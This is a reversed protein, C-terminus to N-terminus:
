QPQLVVDCVAEKSGVNTLTVKVVVQNGRKAWDHWYPTMRPDDAFVMQFNRFQHGPATIQFHIHEPIRWQEGQRDARGPYGGPRITSFEFHGHKDTKLYGFLRAKPENMVSARTYHGLADTQFVYIVAAAVPEGELSRVTGKVSLKEGPEDDNCSVSGKSALTNVCSRESM